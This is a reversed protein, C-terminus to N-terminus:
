IGKTRDRKARLVCLWTRKYRNNRCISRDRTSPVLNNEEVYDDISEPFLVSQSRQVGNIYRM